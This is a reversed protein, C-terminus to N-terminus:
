RTPISIPPTFPIKYRCVNLTVREFDIWSAGYPTRSDDIGFIVFQDPFSVAIQPTEFYIQGDLWLRVLNGDGTVAWHFWKDFPYFAIVEQVGNWGFEIGGLRKAEIHFTNPEGSSPAFTVFTGSNGANHKIFHRGEFTFPNNGVDWATGQAVSLGEDGDLFYSGNGSAFFAGNNDPSGYPVIARSANSRDTFTSVDHGEDGVILFDVNNFHPDRAELIEKFTNEVLRPRPNESFFGHKM